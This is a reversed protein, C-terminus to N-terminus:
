HVSITPGTDSIWGIFERTMERGAELALILDSQDDLNSPNEDEEDDLHFENMVSTM